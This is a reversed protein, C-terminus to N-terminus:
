SAASVSSEVSHLEDREDSRTQSQCKTVRLNGYTIEQVDPRAVLEKVEKMRKRDGVYGFIQDSIHRAYLVIVALLSTTGVAAILHTAVAGM